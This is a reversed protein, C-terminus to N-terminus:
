PPCTASSEYVSSFVSTPYTSSDGAVVTTASSDPHYVINDICFEVGIDGLDQNLEAIQDECQAQTCSNGSGNDEQLIHFTTKITITGRIKSLDKSRYSDWTGDALWRLLQEQHEPTVVTGCTWAQQISQERPLVDKNSSSSITQALASDASFITGLVCLTWFTSLHINM